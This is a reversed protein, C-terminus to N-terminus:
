IHIFMIDENTAQSMAQRETEDDAIRVKIAEVIDDAKVDYEKYKIKRVPFCKIYIISMANGIIERSNDTTKIRIEKFFSNIIEKAKQFHEERVAIQVMNRSEQRTYKIKTTGIFAYDINNKIFIRAVYIEPNWIIHSIWKTYEAMSKIVPNNPKTVRVIVKKGIKNTKVFGINEFTRIIRYVTAFPIQTEKAIGSITAGHKASDIIRANRFDPIM